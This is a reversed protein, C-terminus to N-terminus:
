KGWSGAPLPQSSVATPRNNPSPQTRDSAPIAPITKMQWTNPFLMLQRNVKNAETWVDGKKESYHNEEQQSNVPIFVQVLTDTTKKRGRWFHLLVWRITESLLEGRASERRQNEYTFKWQHKHKSSLGKSFVKCLLETHSNHKASLQLQQERNVPLEWLTVAGPYCYIPTNNKVFNEINGYTLFPTYIPWLANHTGGANIVPKSELYHINWIWALGPLSIQTVTLFFFFLIKKANRFFRQLKITWSIRNFSVLLNNQKMENHFSPTVEKLSHDSIHVGHTNGAVTFKLAPSRHYVRPSLRTTQLWILVRIEPPEWRSQEKGTSQQLLQRCVDTAVLM